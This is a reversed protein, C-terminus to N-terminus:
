LNVITQESVVSEIRRIIKNISNTPDFPSRCRLFNADDKLHYKLSNHILNPFLPIDSKVRSYGSRDGGDDLFNLESNPLFEIGHVSLLSLHEHELCQLSM